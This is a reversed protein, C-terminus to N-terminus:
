VARRRALLWGAGAVLLLGGGTLMWNRATSDGGTLPLASVKVFENTFTVTDGGAARTASSPDPSCTLDRDSVDNSVTFTCTYVTDDYRLGPLTGATEQVKFTYTGDKKASVTVFSQHTQSTNDITVTVGDVGQGVFSGDNPGTLAVTGNKLAEGTSEDPKVTFEFSDDETWDRGTLEKVINLTASVVKAYTNTVAVDAGPQWGSDGVAVIDGDASKDQDIIVTASDSEIEKGNVKYSPTYGPVAQETVTIETGVPLGEIVIYENHRLTLPNGEVTAAGNTFTVDFSTESQVDSVAKYTGNLGTEGNMATVPFAFGRTGSDSPLTYGTEATVTKSIKLSGVRQDAIQVMTVGSFLNTLDTDGLGTIVGSETHDGHEANQCQTVTLAPIGEDVEYYSLADPNTDTVVYDLAADEGEGDAYHLHIEDDGEAAPTKSIVGNEFTAIQPDAKINHLTQDVHDAAAFQVMSRVIRGVGVRVKVGDDANGADAYVGTGDVIIKSLTPNLSYGPATEYEGVYYTDGTNLNEFVCAGTLGEVLDQGNTICTNMPAEGSKPTAVGSEDITVQGEAYLAMTVGSVPTGADDVKQVIFRNLVNPVYLTAAFQREFDDSNTVRYTNGATPNNRDTSYYFASRYRIVDSGDSNFHRYTKIDGPLDDLETKYAGASDPGFTGAQSNAAYASLAGQVGSGQVDWGNIPNGSVAHWYDKADRQEIVEFLLGNGEPGLAKTTTVSEGNYVITDAATTAVKSVSYAGTQWAGYQADSGISLDALLLTSPQGDRDSTKHWLYMHYEDSGRYGGPRATEILVLNLRNSAEVSDAPISDDHYADASSYQDWISSLSIPKNEENLFVVEGNADTTATTIEGQKNYNRDAVSVSFAANAVPEGEQDVKKIGTQPVTVLNYKLSMNSANGGRELYFFDLTHYTDDAFTSTGDVNNQWATSGEKGANEYAKQLTTSTKTDPHEDVSVTVDGTRFDINLSAADHIGGLDGVLVGDIFVWVDDDGTFEYTVENGNNMGGEPQIFQTSMHVGFHADLKTGNSGNSSWNTADINLPDSWQKHRQGAVYEASFPFFEGESSRSGDSILSVAPKNYVTFSNDTKDFTAFNKTSDYSYYGSGDVQLLGKANPYSEKGDASTKDFLYALSEGGLNESENGSQWGQVLKPYGNELTNEVLGSRPLAGTGTWDNVYGPNDPSGNGFKFVHGTDIGTDNDNDSYNFLDITTGRPSVTAATGDLWDQLVDNPVAQAPTPAVIMPCLMGMCILMAMMCGWVGRRRVRSADAHAMGRDTMRRTGQM